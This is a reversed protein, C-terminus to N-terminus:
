LKFDEESLGSTDLIVPAAPRRALPDYTFKRCYSGSSVIGKKECAVETESIKAGYVCYSCSPEIKKDFLM